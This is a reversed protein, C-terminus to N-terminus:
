VRSLFYASVVNNLLDFMEASSADAIIGEILNELPETMKSEVLKAEEVTVPRDEWNRAINSFIYQMVFFPTPSATDLALNRCLHSMEYLNDVYFGKKLNERLQQLSM